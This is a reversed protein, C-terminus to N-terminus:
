SPKATTIAFIDRNKWLQEPGAQPGSSRVAIAAAQRVRKLRDAHRRAAAHGLGRNYSAITTQPSSHSLLAAGDLAYGGELALTTALSARFLHPGFAKGFRRQSRIRTRRSLTAEALPTAHTSIWLAESRAGALLEAREVALYRELMVAVEASLPLELRKRKKTIPPLQDLIWQNGQRRVHVGTQLAACTRLRPARTALIAIMLAERVQVRRGSAKPLTLAEQFLEEAWSLLVAAHPVLGGSRRKTMPLRARISVGHPATIRHFSTGPVMWQLATRLEAFRTVVTYDANGCAQLHEYYGDLWEDRLREAPAAAPDLRGQQQLHGLWRGYGGAVKRLTYANRAAGGDQSRFPGRRPTIAQRWALLDAEPWDEPRLCLRVPTATNGAPPRSAPHGSM